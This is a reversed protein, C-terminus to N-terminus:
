RIAAAGGRPSSKVVGHALYGLGTPLPRSELSPVRSRNGAWRGCIRRTFTPSAHFPVPATREAVSNRPHYNNATGIEPRPYQTRQGFRDSPFAHSSSSLREGKSVRKQRHNTLAIQIM